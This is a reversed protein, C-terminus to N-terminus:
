LMEAFQMIHFCSFAIFIGSWYRYITSKGKNNVKLLYHGVPKKKITSKTKNDVIFLCQRRVTEKNNLKSANQAINVM